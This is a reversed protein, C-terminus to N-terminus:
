LIAMETRKGVVKKEVPFDMTSFASFSHCFMYRWIHRRGGFFTVHNLLTKVKYIYWVRRFYAIWAKVNWANRSIFLLLLLLLMLGFLFICISKCNLCSKLNSYVNHKTELLQWHTWRLAPMLDNGVRYPIHVFYFSENRSSRRSCFIVFSKAFHTYINVMGHLRWILYPAITFTRHTHVTAVTTARSSSPPAPQSAVSNDCLQQSLDCSIKFLSQHWNGLSFCKYVNQTQPEHSERNGYKCSFWIFFNHFPEM